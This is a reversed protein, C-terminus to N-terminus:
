WRNGRILFSFDKERLADHRRIPLRKPARQARFAAVQRSASLTTPSPALSFSLTTYSLQGGLSSM